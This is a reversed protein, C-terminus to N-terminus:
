LLTRCGGPWDTSVQKSSSAIYFRLEPGARPKRWSSWSKGNSSRGNGKAIEM